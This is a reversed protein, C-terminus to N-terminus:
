GGSHMVDAAVPVIWEDPDDLWREPLAVRHQASTRGRPAGLVVDPFPQDLDLKALLEALEDRSSVRGMRLRLESGM